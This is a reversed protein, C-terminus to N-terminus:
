QQAEVRKRKRAVAASRSAGERESARKTPKPARRSPRRAAAQQAAKAAAKAAQAHQAAAKAAQAHQAAKAATELLPQGSADLLELELRPHLHETNVSIRVRVRDMARMTVGAAGADAADAADDADAEGVGAAPPPPTSLTASKEHWTLSTSGDRETLHVWGELGYRPM